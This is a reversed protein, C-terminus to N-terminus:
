SQTLVPRADILTPSERSSRSELLGIKRSLGLAGSQGVNNGGVGADVDFMGDVLPLTRGEAIGPLTEGEAFGPLTREEAVGPFTGGEDLGSLTRGEAVGLLTGGEVFGPLPIEDTSIPPITTPTMTATSSRTSMTSTRISSTFSNFFLDMLYTCKHTVCM